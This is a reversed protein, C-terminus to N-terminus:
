TLPVKKTVKFQTAPTTAQLGLVWYPPQPEQPLSAPLTATDALEPSWHSVRSALEPKWVCTCLICLCEVHSSVYVSASLAAPTPYPFECLQPFGVFSRSAEKPPGCPLDRPSVAQQSVPDEQSLGGPSPTCAHAVGVWSSVCWCCM